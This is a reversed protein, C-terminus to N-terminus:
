SAAHNSTSIRLPFQSFLTGNWSGVGCFLFSDHAAWISRSRLACVVWIQGFAAFTERLGIALWGARNEWIVTRQLLHM